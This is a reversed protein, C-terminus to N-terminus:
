YKLWINPNTESPYVKKILKKEKTARSHVLLNIFIYCYSPASATLIHQQFKPVSDFKEFEKYTQTLSNYCEYTELVYKGASDELTILRRWKPKIGFGAINDIGEIIRHEEKLPLQWRSEILEVSYYEKKNLPQLGLVVKAFGFSDTWITDIISSSTIIKDEVSNLKLLVICPNVKLKQIGSNISVNLTTIFSEKCGHIFQLIICLCLLCVKFGLAKRYNLM